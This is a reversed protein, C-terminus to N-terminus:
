VEQFYRCSNQFCLVFELFSSKTTPPPHPAPATRTILVSITVRTMIYWGSMASISQSLRLCRSQKKGMLKLCSQIWEEMWRWLAYSVHTLVSLGFSYASGQMYVMKHEHLFQRGTCAMRAAVSAAIESVQWTTDHTWVCFNTKKNGV